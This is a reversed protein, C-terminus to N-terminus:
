KVLLIGGSTEVHSHVDNQFSDSTPLIITRNELASPIIIKTRAIEILSNENKVIELNKMFENMTLKKNM